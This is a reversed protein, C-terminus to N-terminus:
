PENDGMHWRSETLKNLTCLKLLDENFSEDSVDPNDVNNIIREALQKERILTLEQENITKTKMKNIKQM